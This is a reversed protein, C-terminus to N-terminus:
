LIGNENAKREVEKRKNEYIVPYATQLLYKDKRDALVILYNLEKCFLNNDIKKGGFQPYFNNINFHQKKVIFCLIILNIFFIISNFLIRKNSQPPPAPSCFKSTLLFKIFYNIM